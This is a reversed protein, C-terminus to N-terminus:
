KESWSRYSWYGMSLIHVCVHDYYLIMINTKGLSSSVYDFDKNLQTGYRTDSHVPKEPSSIQEWRKTRRMGIYYFKPVLWGRCCQWDSGNLRMNGECVNFFYVNHFLLFYGLGVWICSSTMISKNGMASLQQQVEIGVCSLQIEDKNLHWRLKGGLCSSPLLTRRRLQM